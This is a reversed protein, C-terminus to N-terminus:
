HFMAQQALQSVHIISGEDASGPTEDKGVTSQQSLRGYVRAVAERARRTDEAADDPLGYMLHWFLCKEDPDDSNLMRNVRCVKPYKRCFEKAGPTRLPCLGDCMFRARILRNRLERQRPTWKPRTVGAPQPEPGLRMREEVLRLAAVVSPGSVTPFAFGWDENM